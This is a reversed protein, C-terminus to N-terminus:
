FGFILLPVVAGSLACAWNVLDNDFWRKGSHLITSHDCHHLRETIKKCVICQYQAQITAGLLSDILSGFLGGVVASAFVKLDLDQVIFISSLTVIVAGVFAGCFGLWSVAGSTGTEVKQWTLVSRPKGRLMVGIETGWTDATVAAISALFMCYLIDVEPMMYWCFILIGAAGGNAAVQGVDRRDSKEFMLHFQAKKKKGFKSLLSSLIFFTLIPLTWKWGGIGFITAALLFTAVSGDLSLFHFRYSVVAIFLGLILGLIMQNPDHHPLPVLFYHLMFAASLPVTLNDFGKSAIAEWATVFLGSACAVMLAFNVSHTGFRTTLLLPIFVVVATILFMAISGEVSKKDSTLYFLHPSRLNEGVIAAAADAFAL